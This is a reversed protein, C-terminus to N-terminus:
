IYMVFKVYVFYEKMVGLKISLHALNYLTSSFISKSIKNTDSYYKKINKLESYDYKDIITINLKWKDVEKEANLEISAKHIAFYLDSNKFAVSEKDEQKVIFENNGNGYKEIIQEVKNTFNKDGIIDEVIKGETIVLDEPKENLSHQLFQAAIDFNAYKGGIEIVLQWFAYQMAKYASEEYQNKNKCLNFIYSFGTRILKIAEDETKTEKLKNLNEQFKREKKYLDYTQKLQMEKATKLEEFKKIKDVRQIDEKINRRLEEFNGYPLKGLYECTLFRDTLWIQQQKNLGSKNTRDMVNKYLVKEKEKRKPKEQIRLFEFVNEICGTGFQYKSKRMDRKCLICEHM